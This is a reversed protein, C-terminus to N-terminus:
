AGERRIIALKRRDHIQQNYDYYHSVTAEPYIWSWYGFGSDFSAARTGLVICGLKTLKAGWENMLRAVEIDIKNVLAQPALTKVYFRQEGMLKTIQNEYKDTIRLILPLMANAEPLTFVRRGSIHIVDGM